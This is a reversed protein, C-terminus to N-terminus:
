DVISFNEDSYEDYWLYKDSKTWSDTVAATLNVNNVSYTASDANLLQTQIQTDEEKMEKIYDSFSKAM